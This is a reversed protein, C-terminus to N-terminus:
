RCSRRSRSAGSPSRRGAHLDAAIRLQDRRDRDAVVDVDREARRHALVHRAPASTNLAALLHVAGPHTAANRARSVRLRPLRPGLRWPAAREPLCLEGPLARGTALVPVRAAGCSARHRDSRAYGIWSRALSGHAADDAVDALTFRAGDKRLPQVPELVAAVVRRADRDQSPRGCRPAASRRCARCGRAAAGLGRRHGAGSPMPWVRQAVWPRGDSVLAWGCRAPRMTRMWLPIM